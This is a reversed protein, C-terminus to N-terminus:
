RGMSNLQQAFGSNLANPNAIAQLKRRGGYINITREDGSALLNNAEQASPQYGSTNQNVMNNFAQQALRGEGRALRGGLDAERAFQAADYVNMAMGAPGLVRGAGRVIPALGAGIKSMTGPIAGQVEQLAKVAQADNALNGPLRMNKIQDKTMSAWDQNPMVKTLYDAAPKIEQLTEAPIRSLFNNVNGAVERAGQYTDYLKKMGAVPPAGMQTLAVDTLVNIPNKVYSGAAQLAPKIVAQGLGKALQPLGTEAAYAAGTASPAVAGVVVEGPSVAGLPQPKEQQTSAVGIDSPLDDEPVLSGPLDDAPVAQGM